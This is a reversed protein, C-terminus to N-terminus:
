YLGEKAMQGWTRRGGQVTVDGTIANRIEQEELPPDGWPAGHGSIQSPSDFSAPTKLTLDQNM